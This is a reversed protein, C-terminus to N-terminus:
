MIAVEIIIFMLYLLFLVTAEKKTVRGGSWIFIYFFVASIVLFIRAVAVASLNVIPIPHILAVTGLVITACSIISGMLNGLVMWNQERRASVVAFYVEPLANGVAVILIGVLILPLNLVSGLFVASKVIGQSAALILALSFIIIGLNKFFDRFSLNNMGDYVKTFREASAFIWFIYVLCALILVLGDGRSIAGDLALFLPLIAIVATFVASKQVLKSGTELSSRGIFVALAVALTLDIVNGSIVDGFSLEPIGHVASNIGVFFDPLSAGFAVAFFAVVFERWGLFKAIRMLARVLWEGGM